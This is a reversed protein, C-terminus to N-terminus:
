VAIWHKYLKQLNWSTCLMAWQTKVNELGRFSWRRFNGNSKIQAFIPEVIAGRRRLMERADDDKLRRRNEELAQHGLALDITRGHAASTCLNRVPCNKCTRSSRYVRTLYGRRIRERQFLIKQNQPCIVVDEKADYKFNSSHYPNGKPNKSSPPMPTIVKFENEKAKALERGNAYGGDAVTVADSGTNEKAQSCMKTLERHDDVRATVDAALILGEKSDVVAQANYGFRNRQDCQMRNTELDHPHVHKRLENHSCELAKQVKEKLVVRQELEKPLDSSVEQFKEGGSILGELERIQLDLNELLEELGKQSYGSGGGNVAQIKTGDVAQLVLGALDLNLAIKISQKFLSRLGQRNAKFFRWLTNHDPRHNGCLWIFGIDERCSLELKRSSRVKKYYGYLWVRLLLQPSYTPRGYEEQPMIFGVDTMNLGDVFERIFRSPHNTDVWDEIAPPLLYQENYDAEIYKGM